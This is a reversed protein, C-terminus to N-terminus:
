LYGCVTNIDASRSFSRAEPRYVWVHKWEFCHLPEGFSTQGPEAVRPVDISRYVCTRFELATNTVTEFEPDFSAATPIDRAWLSPSSMTARVSPDFARTSRSFNVRSDTLFSTGEPAYRMRAHRSKLPDEENWYMPDSDVSDVTWELHTFTVVAGFHDRVHDRRESLSGDARIEQTFICGRIFQVFVFDELQNREATEYNM